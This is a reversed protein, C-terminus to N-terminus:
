DSLRGSYTGIGPRIYIRIKSLWSLSGEELFGRRSSRTLTIFPPLIARSSGMFTGNPNTFTYNGRPVLLPKPHFNHLSVIGTVVPGLAAPIKPDSMNAFHKVGNVQLHHIETHYARNVLGATGGFDIFLGSPQVGHVTFGKSKLWGTVVDVDTPSAGFHQSFQEPTLWKHFNPSTSDHLDTIYGELAADREPSRKLQLLMHDIPFDDAVRGLDNASIAEPRTNHGLTVLKSEDIRGLIMPMPRGSPQAQVAPALGIAALSIILFRSMTLSSM